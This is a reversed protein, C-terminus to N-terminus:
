WPLAVSAPTSVCVGSVRHRVGKRRIPHVGYTLETNLGESALVALGVLCDGDRELGDLAWVLQQFEGSKEGGVVREDAIM